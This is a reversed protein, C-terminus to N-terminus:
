RHHQHVAGSALGRELERGGGCGDAADVAVGDGVDEIGTIFGSRM